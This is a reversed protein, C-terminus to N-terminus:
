GALGALTQLSPQVYGTDALGPRCRVPRLCNGFHSRCALLAVSGLTLAETNWSCSAPGARSIRSRQQEADGLPDCGPERLSLFHGQMNNQGM